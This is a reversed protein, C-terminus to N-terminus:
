KTNQIGRSRSLLYIRSPFIPFDLTSLIYQTHILSQLKSKSFVLCLQQGTTQFLGKKCVMQFNFKGSSGTFEDTKLPYGYDLRIPAGPLIFLRLGIGVDSYVDDFDWASRSVTGADYFTAVRVKDGLSGPLPTSVEATLYASTKGGIPEGNEDKPGAERYDYGRLNRAGGLFERKFIPM